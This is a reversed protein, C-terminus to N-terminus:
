EEKFEAKNDTGEEIKPMKIATILNATFKEQQVEYVLFFSLKGYWMGYM